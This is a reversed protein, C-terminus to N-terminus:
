LPTPVVKTTTTTTTTKAIAVIANTISMLGVMGGTILLVDEGVEVEMVNTEVVVIVDLEDFEVVELGVVELGVVEVVDLEVVLAISPAPSFQGMDYKPRPETM